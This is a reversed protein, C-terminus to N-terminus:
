NPRCRIDQELQTFGAENWVSSPAGLDRVNYRAAEQWRPHGSEGTGASKNLNRTPWVDAGAATLASNLYIAIDSNVFDEVIGWWYSRQLVWASGTWYYGHGPSIAIRRGTISQAVFDNNAAAAVMRQPDAARKPTQLLDHLPIGDILFLFDIDRLEHRLVENAAFHIKRSVQEFEFSGIRYDLLERSFNLTLRNSKLVAELLHTDPPVRLDHTSSHSVSLVQNIAAAAKAQLQQNTTEGAAYQPIQATGSCALLLFAAVLTSTPSASQRHRIPGELTPREILRLIANM